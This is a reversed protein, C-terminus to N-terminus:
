WDGRCLSQLLPNPANEGHPTGGLREHTHFPFSPFTASIEGWVRWPGLDDQRVAIDHMLIAGNLSVKPLWTEFDHKAAVYTDRGYLHLLNVTGEAFRMAAEDSSM